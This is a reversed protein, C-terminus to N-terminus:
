QVVITPRGPAREWVWAESYDSAVAGAKANVRFEYVAFDYPQVNISAEVVGAANVPPDGLLLTAVIEGDSRRIMVLEHQDDKDHDPCLFAVGRPNRPLAATPGQAAPLLDTGGAVEVNPASVRLDVTAGPAPEPLLDSCDTCYVNINTPEQAFAPGAMGVVVAAVFLLTRM